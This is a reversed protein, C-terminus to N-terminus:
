VTDCHCMKYLPWWRRFIFLPHHSFRQLRHSCNEGGNGALAEIPFVNSKVVFIPLSCERRFCSFVKIGALLNTYRIRIKYMIRKRSDQNSSIYLQSMLPEIRNTQM